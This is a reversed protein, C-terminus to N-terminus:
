VPLSFVLRNTLQTRCDSTFRRIESLDCIATTNVDKALVVNADINQSTHPANTARARVLGESRIVHIDILRLRDTRCRTISRANITDSAYGNLQPPASARAAGPSKKMGAGCEGMRWIGATPGSV